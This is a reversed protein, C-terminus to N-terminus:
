RGEETGAARQPGEEKHRSQRATATWALHHTGIVLEDSLMVASMTVQVNRFGAM